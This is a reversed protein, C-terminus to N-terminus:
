VTGRKRLFVMIGISVIAGLIEFGSISKENPKNIETSTTKTEVLKALWVDDVKSSTQGTIIYSGNSIQQVSRAENWDNGGFTKNWQENGNADTKIIWANRVALDIFGALIFGGDSTQQISRAEDWDIGGFTKNWQENGNADTKILWADWGGAGYSQTKGVLIFGGDSTQQVDFLYDLYKGGFTKNWQENGNVDTRILWADGPGYYDKSGVVIYGGDSTQKASLADNFGVRGFIKNWQENGNADTKIIWADSKGAGYTGAILFGEDSSQQVSFFGTYTGEFTKNWQENGNADIKIIWGGYGGYSYTDGALIFGGDSTQQGSRASDKEVGGFTKNWKENGNADTKIIWADSKGAGYSYTEGVLIFGGDSSQQVSYVSDSKTGGFINNWQEELALGASSAFLILVIMTFITFTFTHLLFTLTLKGNFM